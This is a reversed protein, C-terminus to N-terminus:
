IREITFFDVSLSSKLNKGLQKSFAETILAASPSSDSLILVSEGKEIVKNNPFKIIKVSVTKGSIDQRHKREKPTADTWSIDSFSEALEFQKNCIQRNILRVYKGNQNSLKIDAIKQAKGGVITTLIGYDNATYEYRETECKGGINRKATVKFNYNKIM